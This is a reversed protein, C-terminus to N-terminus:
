FEEPFMDAKSQLFIHGFREYRKDPQFVSSYLESSIAVYNDSYASFTSDGLLSIQKADYELSEASISQREKLEDNLSIALKEYPVNKLGLTHYCETLTEIDIRLWYGRFVRINREQKLMTNFEKLIKLKKTETMKHLENWDKFKYDHKIKKKFYNVTMEIEMNGMVPGYIDREIDYFLDTYEYRIIVGRDELKNLASNMMSKIRSNMQDTWYEIDAHKHEINKKELLNDLQKVFQNIVVYNEGIREYVKTSMKTTDFGLSLSLNNKSTMLDSVMQTEGQVKGTHTIIKGTDKMLMLDEYLGKIIINAATDSYSYKSKKIDPNIPTDYIKEIIWKRQTIRIIKMFRELDKLRHQKLCQSSLEPLNLIESLESLGKYEHLPTINQSVMEHMEMDNKYGKVSDYTIKPARTVTNKKPKTPPLPKDYIKIIHLTDRLQKYELFRKTYKRAKTLEGKKDLNTFGLQKLFKRETIPLIEGEHAYFRVSNMFSEDKTLKKSIKPM